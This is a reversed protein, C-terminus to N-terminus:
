LPSPTGVHAGGPAGRPLLGRGVAAARCGASVAARTAEGEGAASPAPACRARRRAGRRRRCTQRFRPSNPAFKSSSNGGAPLPLPGWAHWHETRLRGMWCEKKRQYWLVVGADPAIHRQKLRLQLAQLAQKVHTTFGRCPPSCTGTRRQPPVRTGARGASPSRCATYAGSIRMGGRRGVQWGVPAVGARKCAPSAHKGASPRVGVSNTWGGLTPLQGAVM